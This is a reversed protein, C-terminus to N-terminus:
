REGAPRRGVVLLSQGFPPRVVREVARLPRVVVRDYFLALGRTTPRIRLMRATVLWALFGISNVYTSKVVELGAARVKQELERRRYRRHHGVARDFPSYLLEFAPVYLVAAGGPRLARAITVLAADDDAIHELVNLLVVTDARRDRLAGDLDTHLATAGLEAARAALRPFQRPSPEVATVHGHRALLPTFTGHGAGIEVIEGTTFPAILAEIWRAYHEACDLSHLSDFLEEDVRTIHHVRTVTLM